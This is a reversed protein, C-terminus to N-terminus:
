HEKRLFLAAIFSSLAGAIIYTFLVGFINYITFNDRMSKVGDEIEKANYQQEQMSKVGAQIAREKADPFLQFSIAVWIIMVLTIIATMKFGNGFLDGVAAVNNNLKRYQLDAIIIGIFLLCVPIYNVFTNEEANLFLTVAAAIVMAIATPLGYKFAINKKHEDNISLEPQM